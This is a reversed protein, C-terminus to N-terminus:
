DDAYPSTGEEDLAENGYRRGGWRGRHGAKNVPALEGAIDRVSRLRHGEKRGRRDVFFAWALLSAFAAAAIVVFV